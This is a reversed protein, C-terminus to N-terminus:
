PNAVFKAAPVQGSWCTDTNDTDIRLTGTGLAGGDCYFPAYGTAWFAGNDDV